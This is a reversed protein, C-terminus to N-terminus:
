PSFIQLQSLIKVFLANPEADGHKGAMVLELENGNSDYKRSAATQRKIPVTSDIKSCM